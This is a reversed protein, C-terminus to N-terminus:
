IWTLKFLISGEESDVEIADLDAPTNQYLEETVDSIPIRVEMRRGSGQDFVSSRFYVPFGHETCWQIFEANFAQDSRRYEPNLNRTRRFWEQNYQRKKFIM